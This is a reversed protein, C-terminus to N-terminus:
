LIDALLISPTYLLSLSRERTNVGQVKIYFYLEPEHFIYYKSILTAYVFMMKTQSYITLHCILPPFFPSDCSRKGVSAYIMSTEPPMICCEELLYGRMINATSLATVGFHRNPTYNPESRTVIFVM